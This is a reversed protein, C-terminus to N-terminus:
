RCWRQGSGPLPIVMRGGGMMVLFRLGDRAYEGVAEFDVMDGEIGRDQPTAIALVEPVFMGHRVPTASAQVIM